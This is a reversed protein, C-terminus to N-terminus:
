RTRGRGCPERGFHGSPPCLTGLGEGTRHTLKEGGVDPFLGVLGLALVTGTWPNTPGELGEDHHPRDHRPAGPRGVGLSEHERPAEVHLDMTGLPEARALLEAAEGLGHDTQGHRHPPREAIGHPASNEVKQSVAHGHLFPQRQPTVARSHFTGAGRLQFLVQALGALLFRCRHEPDGGHDAQGGAHEPGPPQPCGLRPFTLVEDLQQFSKGLRGERAHQQDAVGTIHSVVQHPDQELLLARKQDPERRLRLEVAQLHDRHLLEM